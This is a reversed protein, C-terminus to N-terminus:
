ISAWKQWTLLVHLLLMTTQPYTLNFALLDCNIIKKTLM